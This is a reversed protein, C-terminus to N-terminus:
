QTSFDLFSLTRRSDPYTPVRNLPAAHASSNIFIAGGNGYTWGSYGEKSFGSLSSSNTSATNNSRTSQYSDSPSQHIRGNYKTDANSLRSWDSYNDLRCKGCCLYMRWHKRVNEKILCHFVFIFFGQLTNFITFLYMFAVQVSDWAFFAFGWTLGLLFALSLTSKIDHLFLSKWDRIKTAKLSKIQLLVVIFMSINILFTICFYAVVTVYFVKNSMIWCFSEDTPSKYRELTYVDGYFDVNISLVIAVIVTPIGWGAICLKLIYKHIYSNFVKVFAFYMHVAELGMWTFSTLLFYHLVVGVSVCLGHIKFSSLWNNILFILNLMLLSFTLNMLIKTPYDRRLQRFMGYTVLTVGLFLTTIGCGVYTLLSMIYSDLPNLGTRSLDLLVGFHTLHSCTCLTYEADKYEESCGSENWGGTNGNKAPDWFVCKVPNLDENSRFNQLKIKVPQDLSQINVGEVTASIVYSNLVYHNITPDEFLSLSGLFNFQVKSAVFGTQDRIAEPLYISAVINDTPPNELSIELNDGQLYSKVIFYFDEFVSFNVKTVLVAMSNSTVNASDGTFNIKFGIEETINLIQNTFIPLHQNAKVLIDNLVNLQIKANELDIDGMAIIESIKSLIIRIDKEPLSSANNTMNLIREALYKANEPTVAVSDLDEFSHPLPELLVCRSFDPSEWESSETTESISCRRLVFENQDTYCASKATETPNTENWRYIFRDYQKTEAPCKELAKIRVSQVSLSISSQEDKFDEQNELLNQLEVALSESSSSSNAQIILKSHYSPGGSVTIELVSFVTTNFYFDMM